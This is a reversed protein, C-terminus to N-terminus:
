EVLHVSPQISASSSSTLTEKKIPPVALPLVAAPKNAAPQTTTAVNPTTVQSHPQQTNAQNTPASGTTALPPTQPDGAKLPQGTVPKVASVAAAKLPPPRPPLRGSILSDIEAQILSKARRHSSSPAPILEEPRFVPASVRIRESLPLPPPVNQMQQYIVWGQWAAAASAVMALAFMLWTRRQKQRACVVEVKAKGFITNTIKVEGIDLRKSVKPQSKAALLQRNPIDFLSIEHAM